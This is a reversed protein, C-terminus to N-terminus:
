GPAASLPRFPGAGDLCCEVPFIGGESKRSGIESKRRGVEAKRRRPAGRPYLNRGVKVGHGVEEDAQYAVLCHRIDKQGPVRSESHDILVDEYSGWQHLFPAPQFMGQGGGADAGATVPFYAYLSIVKGVDVLFQVTESQRFLPVVVVDVQGAAGLQHRDCEVVVEGLGGVGVAAADEVYGDALVGVQLHIRFMLAPFRGDGVADCQLLVQRAVAYFHFGPFAVALEVPRRFVGGGHQGMEQLGHVAAAGEGPHHFPQAVTVALYLLFLHHFQRHALFQGGEQLLDAVGQGFVALQIARGGAVEGAPPQFLPGIGAYPFGQAQGISGDAVADPHRAGIGAAVGHGVLAVQQEGEVIGQIDRLTFGAQAEVGPLQEFLGDVLQGGQAVLEALAHFGEEQGQGVQPVAPAPQLLHEEVAGLQVAHGQEVPLAQPRLQLPPQLPQLASQQITPPSSQQLAGRQLGM